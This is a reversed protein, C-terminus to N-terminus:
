WNLKVWDIQQKKDLFTWALIRSIKNGQKMEIVKYEFIGLKNVFGILSKLNDNKSVLTTFWLVNKSFLKSETMMNQIFKVEGGECWLETNQGGFNLSADKVQTQKLNSVKRINGANAEKASTHFPPNCITIDIKDDQTIINKFIFNKNTQHKLEINSQLFTNNDIILRANQISKQEIDSAIFHWNYEAVGIIPYVLNAGTGIDLCTIKEVNPLKGNNNQILLDAIYHIYDARGPIPPCLNGEPIDWFDVKYFHKLLAKNLTKVAKNDFFNITVDNFENKFVFQKLDPLSNCLLEFDYRQNHKNRPHLITKISSKVKDSNKM